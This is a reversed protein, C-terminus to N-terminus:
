PVDIIAPQEDSAIVSKAPGLDFVALPLNLPIIQWAGGVSGSVSCSILLDFSVGEGTKILSKALASAM